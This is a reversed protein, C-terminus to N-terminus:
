GEDAMHERIHVSLPDDAPVEKLTTRNREMYADGEGRLFENKQLLPM